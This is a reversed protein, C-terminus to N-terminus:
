DVTPPDIAWSVLDRVAQEITLDSCALTNIIISSPSLGPHTNVELAYFRDGRVRFDIRSFGTFRLHRHMALAALQMGEELEEPVTDDCIVRYKNDHKVSKDFYRSDFEIRATPLVHVEPIRWHGFIGICYEPGDVFEEAYAMGVHEGGRDAWRHWVERLEEENNVLELGSSSGGHTLKLMLPYGITAAVVAGLAVSDDDHGPFGLRASRPHPINLEDFVDKSLIKDMGIVSAAIGHGTMPIGALEFFGQLQGANERDGHLANFVVDPRYEVFCSVVSPWSREPESGLIRVTGDSAWDLVEVQYGCARLAPEVVEVSRRSLYDEDSIGGSLIAVLTDHAKNKM